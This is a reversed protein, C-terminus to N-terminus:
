IFNIFISKKLLHYKSEQSHMRKIIDLRKIVRSFVTFGTRKPKRKGGLDLESKYSICIFIESSESGPEIRDM